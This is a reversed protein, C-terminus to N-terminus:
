ARVVRPPARFAPFAHSVPPGRYTGSCEFPWSFLLTNPGHGYASLVYLQKAKQGKDTDSFLTFSL